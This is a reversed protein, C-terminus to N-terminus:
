VTPLSNGNLFFSQNKKKAQNEIHVCSRKQVYPAVGRNVRVFTVAHMINWVDRKRLKWRKFFCPRKMIKCKLINVECWNKVYMQILFQLFPKRCVIIPILQPVLKLSDDYLKLHNNNQDIQWCTSYQKAKYNYWLINLSQSSYTLLLVTYICWINVLCCLNHAAWTIRWIPNRCVLAIHCALRCDEEFMKISSNHLYYDM